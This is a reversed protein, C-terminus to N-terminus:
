VRCGSLSRVLLKARWDVDFWVSRRSRSLLGAHALDANLKGFTLAQPIMEKGVAICQGDEVQSCNQKHRIM